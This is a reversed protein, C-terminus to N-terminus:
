DGVELREGLWEPLGAEEIRGQARAVDYVVRRFEIEGEEPRWVAYAARPDGDRPQGASGPNVLWCSDDELLFIGEEGKSFREEGAVSALHTHGFFCVRAEGSAKLKAAEAMMEHDDWLYRDRDNPAGHVLLAGGEVVLREPLDRLFALNADTLVDATWEVAARAGSNFGEASELGVAVVDHNGQICVAGRARLLDVCQNPSGGYGVTDGLCYIAGCGVEDLDAVVAQLAAYNGHIDSIVAIQRM